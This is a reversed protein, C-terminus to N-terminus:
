YVQQSILHGQDDFTYHSYDLYWWTTMKKADDRTTTTYGEPGHQRRLWVNKQDVSLYHPPDIPKIKIKSKEFELTWEAIKAAALKGFEKTNAPIYLMQRYAGQLNGDVAKRMAREYITKYRIENLLQNAELAHESNPEVNSLRLIAEHGDQAEALRKGYTYQVLNWKRRADVFEPRQQSVKELYSLAAEIRGRETHKMENNVPMRWIALREWNQTLFWDAIQIYSTSVYEVEATAKLYVPDYERLLYTAQFPDTQGPELHEIPQLVFSRVVKSEPTSLHLKIQVNRVPLAETNQVQGALQVDTLNQETLVMKINQVNATVEALASPMMLCSASFLALLAHKKM